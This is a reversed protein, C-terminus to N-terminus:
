RLARLGELGTSAETQVRRLEQCEDPTPPEHSGSWEGHETPHLASCARRAHLRLDTRLNHVEYRRSGGARPSSLHDAMVKVPTRLHNVLCWYVGGVSIDRPM